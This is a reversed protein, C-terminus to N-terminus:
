RYSHLVHFPPTKHSLQRRAYKDNRLEEEVSSVQDVYLLGIHAYYGSGAFAVLALRIPARHLHSRCLGPDLLHLGAARINTFEENGLAVSYTPM